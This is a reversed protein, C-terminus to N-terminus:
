AREWVEPQEGVFCLEIRYARIVVVGYNPDDPGKFVVGLRDSWFSHRAERDTAFEARGEIQLYPGTETPHIIGCTLHVEPNREIQGVKRGDVFSSCRFTMDDSAETMVYRVWPRGDETITALGSLCPGKFVALIREALSPM